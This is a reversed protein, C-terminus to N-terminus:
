SFWPKASIQTAHPSHGRGSRIDMMGGLRVRRALMHLQEPQEKSLESACPKQSIHPWAFGALSRM